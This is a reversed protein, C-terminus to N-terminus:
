KQRNTGLNLRCEYFLIRYQSFNWDIKKAQKTKILFNYKIKRTIKYYKIKKKHGPQPPMWFTRGSPCRCAWSDPIKHYSSCSSPAPRSGGVGPWLQCGFWVRPVLRHHPLLLVSAITFLINQRKRTIQRLVIDFFLFTIGIKLAFLVKYLTSTVTSQPPM